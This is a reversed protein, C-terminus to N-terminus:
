LHGQRGEDSTISLGVRSMLRFSIIAVLLRHCQALLPHDDFLNGLSDAQSSPRDLSPHFLFGIHFGIVMVMVPTTKIRISRIHSLSPITSTMVDLLDPTLHFSLSIRM